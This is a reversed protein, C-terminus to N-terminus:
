ELKRRFEKEAALAVASEAYFLARPDVRHEEVAVVQERRVGLNADVLAIAERLLLLAVVFLALRGAKSRM